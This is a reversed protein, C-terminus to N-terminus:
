FNAVFVPDTPVFDVWISAIEVNVDEAARRDELWTTFQQDKLQEGERASVPRFERGRVQIVHWGFESQVPGAIEGLPADTVAQAFPAVFGGTPSWGLEGGQSGSGTDTSVARALEAFSEGNRLAEVVDLADAETELLIHRANVYLAQNEPTEIVADRLATRLAQAEFYANIDADSLRASSRLYAFFEDRQQHYETTLEEATLTATPMATPFPTGTATAEVAATAEGTAEATVEAVPAPTSTPVPSPTPSVFPTPTVTPTPTETAPQGATLPDFGFFSSIRKQVDEDSVSIGRAAAEQRVLEDDVMRNIVENGLQDPIQVQALWTRLPEQGAYQNPDLGQATILALYGNIQQNLLARELRVRREFQSVTITEGNVTAVVQNPTVVLEIVLAAVLIVAVVAVTVVTGIVVWRQIQAEREARSKHERADKQPDAAAAPKQKDKPLGTTQRRKSM